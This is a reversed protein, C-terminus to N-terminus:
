GDPDGGNAAQLTKAAEVAALLSAALALAEDHSMDFDSV